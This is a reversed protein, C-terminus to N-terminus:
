LREKEKLTRALSANSVGLFAVQKKGTLESLVNQTLAITYPIQYYALREVLLAQHSSSTDTAIIMYYIRKKALARKALEGTLFANARIVFHLQQMWLSNV